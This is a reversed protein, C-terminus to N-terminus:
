RPSLPCAPPASAILLFCLEPSCRADCKQSSWWSSSAVLRSEAARRRPRRPPHTKASRTRWSEWAACLELEVSPSHPAWPLPTPRLRSPLPPACTGVVTLLMNDLLLALFVIFLILKRSHRGDLLRRVLPLDSLAMARPQAAPLPLPSPGQRIPTGGGEFSVSGRRRFPSRPRTGPAGRLEGAARVDEAVGTSRTLTARPRGQTGPTCAREGGGRPDPKKRGPAGPSRRPVARM